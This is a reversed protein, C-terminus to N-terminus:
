LYYSGFLKEFEQLARGHISMAGRFSCEMESTITKWNKCLVYRNYLVRYQNTNTITEIQKTIERKKQFSHEISEALEVEADAIKSVLSGMKDPEGSSQVDVEKLSVSISCAMDRLQNIEEVKNKIIFDLKSIQGLYTKTDM